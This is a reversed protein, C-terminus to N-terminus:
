NITVVPTDAEEPFSRIRTVEDQIDQLIRDRSAGEVMTVMVTASGNGRINSTIEDVNEVDRVNSEVVQVMSTEMEEPSAGDLNLSITVTEIYNPVSGTEVRYVSAAPALSPQAGRM